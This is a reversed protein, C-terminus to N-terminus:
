SGNRWYRHIILWQEPYRRLLDEFVPLLQAMMREPQDDPFVPPAIELQYQGDPQRVIFCPLLPAGSSRSLRAPWTLFPAEGGLFPFPEGRGAGFGIDAAVLVMGQRRLVALAEVGFFPSGDIAIETIAHETRRRSRAREFLGSPDRNYVIAVPQHLRALLMPGVEYNGLHLTIGIIGKGAARAEHYHAEGKMREFLRDDVPLARHSTLLEITFRAFHALVSISLRRRDATTADPGLLYGANAQLSRRLGPIGQYMLPASIRGMAHLWRPPLWEGGIRALALGLRAAPNM